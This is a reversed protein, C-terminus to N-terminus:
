DLQPPKLDPYKDVIPNVVDLLMAGMSRGIMRKYESFEADTCESRIEGLIQDQEASHKLIITMIKEAAGHSM